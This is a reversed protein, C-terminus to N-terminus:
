ISSDFLLFLFKFFLKKTRNGDDSEEVVPSAAVAWSSSFFSFPVSVSSEVSHSM